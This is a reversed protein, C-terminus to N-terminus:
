RFYILMNLILEDLDEEVPVDALAEKPTIYPRGSPSDSGYMPEPFLIEGNLKHGFLFLRERQQPIGYDCADLVRHSVKYGLSSFAKVIEKWDEGSNTGLIGRM